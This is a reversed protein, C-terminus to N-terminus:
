YEVEQVQRAITKLAECLYDVQQESNFYSFSVRVLGSTTTGLTSHAGAACHLGARVAIGFESDLLQAVRDCSLGNVVFSVLACGPASQRNGAIFIFESRNLWFLFREYLAKEHAAVTAIGTEKLFRCGAGLAAIAPGALTGPELHDPYAEPM